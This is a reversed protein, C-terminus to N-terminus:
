TALNNKHVNFSAKLTMVVHKLTRSFMTEFTLNTITGKVLRKRLKVSSIKSKGVFLQKCYALYITTHHSM